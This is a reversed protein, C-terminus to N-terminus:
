ARIEKIREEVAQAEAKLETLYSELQAVTEAKSRYRRRFGGHGGDCCCGGQGGDCRCAGHGGGSCCGGREGSCGCQCGAQSEDESHCECHQGHHQHHHQGGTECHCM